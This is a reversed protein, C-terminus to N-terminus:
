TQKQTKPTADTHAPLAALEITTGTSCTFSQDPFANWLQATAHTGTCHAPGIRAPQYARMAEITNHIRQPSAAGLHMGGVMTFCHKHGTLNKIYDLTNVVGAHACGLLVVLGQTSQFFLAQDDLIPDPQNRAADLFFPGGTDEFDTVRPVPGTVWLGPCVQQPQTTWHLQHNKKQQRLHMATLNPMGVPRPPKDNHCSFRPQLADPHLYVSAHPAQDLIRMLGGTHDYHGHSLVIAQTQTLDIGLVAANAQIIHSAGSDFLINHSGYEIWFALGHEALLPPHNSTNEVLTTIRVTETM